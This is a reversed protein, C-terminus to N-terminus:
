TILKGHQMVPQVTPSIASSLENFVEFWQHKGKMVGVCVKNCKVRHTHPQKLQYNESITIFSGLIKSYLEGNINPNNYDVFTIRQWEPVSLIYLQMLKRHRQQQQVNM